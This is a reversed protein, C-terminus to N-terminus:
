STSLGALTVFNINHCGTRALALMGEGLERASTRRGRHEQSIDYNQCFICRLNCSTLFITGSGKGGVLPEEEGFHPHASAVEAEAGLGCVGTEGIVRDVECRRPCLTCSRLMERGREVRKALEGSAHLALYGPEM